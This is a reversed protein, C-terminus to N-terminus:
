EDEMDEGTLNNNNSVTISQTNNTQTVFYHIAAATGVLAVGLIPVQLFAALVFGVLIWYGFKKMPMYVLLLAFGLAPLVGGAINLGVMFWSPMFSLVAEVVTKGFVISLFVPIAGQLSILFTSIPILRTMQNFKKELGYKHAKRSIGSNILKFMVDLNMTLMAVPLGVALGAAFGEGTTIALTTTIISAVGYDPMSAGGINAVGLSMLQIQAGVIVGTEFDGLIIGTLVGYFMPIKGFFQTTYRDLNYMYALATIAIVQVISLGM